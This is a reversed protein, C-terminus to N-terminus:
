RRALSGLAALGDRPWDLPPTQLEGPPCIRTAGIARLRQAVAVEEEGFGALAVGALHRALPGLAAGLGQPAPFPHVRVFRGLPVPRPAADPEVIVAWSADRAAHVVV